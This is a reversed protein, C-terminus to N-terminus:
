ILKSDMESPLVKIPLKKKRRKEKLEKNRNNFALNKKQKL